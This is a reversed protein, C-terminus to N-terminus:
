YNERMYIFRTRNVKPPPGGFSIATQPNGSICNAGSDCQLWPLHAANAAQSGSCGAIATSGTATDGLNPMLKLSGNKGSGPASLTLTSKGASLKGSSSLITNCQRLNDKYSSLTFQEPLVETCNDLTNTQWSSGSWYKAELAVTAATTPNAVSVEDPLSLYGYRFANPTSTGSADFAITNFNAKVSSPPSSCPPTGDTDTTDSPDLCVPICANSGTGSQDTCDSIQIGLSLSANFPSTSSSREYALKAMDPLTILASGDNADTITAAPTQRTDLTRGTSDTFQLAGSAIDLPGLRSSFRHNGTQGYEGDSDYAWAKLTFEPLTSFGFPQGVYTFKRSPCQANTADFTRFKPSNLATITLIEPVFRGVQTTASDNRIQRDVPASCSNKADEIAFQDDIVSLTFSGADSFTADTAQIKGATGTPKFTATIESLDGGSPLVISAIDAQPTIPLDDTGDNTYFYSSPLSSYAALANGNADRAIATLTFPRGAAHVNGGSASTNSLTRSTGATKWNSDSATVLFDKPRIAFLDLSCAYNNINTTNVTFVGIKRYINNIAPATVTGYGGSLTTTLKALYSNPRKQSNLSLASPCNSTANSPSLAINSFDLLYVEVPDNVTTDVNTRSSNLAVIKLPFTSGAIKTNIAKGACSGTSDYANFSGPTPNTIPTSCSVSSSTYYSPTNRSNAKTNTAKAVATSTVTGTTAPTGASITLQSSTGSSRRSQKKISSKSYCTVVRGSASCNWGSGSAGLYDLQSDLTITIYSQRLAKSTSNTITYTYDVASSTEGGSPCTKNLEISSAAWGPSGLTLMGTLILLSSRITM